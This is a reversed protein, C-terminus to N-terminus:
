GATGEMARRLEEAAWENLEAESKFERPPPAARAAAHGNTLTTPSRPGPSTATQGNVRPPTTTDSGSRSGRQKSREEKTARRQAEAQQMHAAVMEFSPWIGPGAMNGADDKPATNRWHANALRLFEAQVAAPDDAAVDPFEEWKEELFASFSAGVKGELEQTEQARRQAEMQERQAATQQERAEQQKRWAKLEELEKQEPTLPKHDMLRRAFDHPDLGAVEFYAFPDREVAAWKDERAKLEAERAALTSEKARAQEALQAAEQKTRIAEDRMKLGARFLETDREKPKEPEKAPEPTAEPTETAEGEAAAAELASPEEAPPAAENTETATEETTETEADM